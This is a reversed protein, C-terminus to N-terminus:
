EVVNSEMDAIVDFMERPVVFAESFANIVIGKVDHENNRALNAAKLIHKQVTSFVEGYEGM